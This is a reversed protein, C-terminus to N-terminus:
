IEEITEAWATREVGRDPSHEFGPETVIKTVHANVGIAGGGAGGALDISEGVGEAM